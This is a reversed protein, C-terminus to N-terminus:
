QPVFRQSLHTAFDISWVLMSPLLWSHMLNLASITLKAGLICLTVQTWYTSVFLVSSSLLINYCWHPSILIGESVTCCIQAPFLPLMQDLRECHQLITRVKLSLPSSSPFWDQTPLPPLEIWGEHTISGEKIELCEAWSKIVGEHHRYCATMLM